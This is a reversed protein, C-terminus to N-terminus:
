RGHKKIVKKLLKKKKNKYQGVDVKLRGEIASDATTKPGQINPQASVVPEM